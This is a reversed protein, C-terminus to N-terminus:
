EVIKVIEEPKIWKKLGKNTILLYNGNQVLIVVGITGDKTIVKSNVM